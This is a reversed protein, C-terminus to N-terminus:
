PAESIKMVEEWKRPSRAKGNRLTLPRRGM